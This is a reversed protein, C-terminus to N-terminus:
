GLSVIWALSFHSHCCSLDEMGTLAPLRVAVLLKLTLGKTGFGSAVSM